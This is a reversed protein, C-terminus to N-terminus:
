GFFSIAGVLLLPAFAFVLFAVLALTSRAAEGLWSALSVGDATRRRAARRRTSRAPSAEIEYVTMADLATM